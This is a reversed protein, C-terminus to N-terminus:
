VNDSGKPNIEELRAIEARIAKCNEEYGQTSERARLKAKLATLRDTM